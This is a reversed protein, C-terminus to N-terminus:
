CVVLSTSMIMVMYYGRRLYVSEAVCSVESCVWFRGERNKSTNSIRRRGGYQQSKMHQHPDVM